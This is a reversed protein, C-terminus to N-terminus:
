FYLKARTDKIRNAELREHEQKYSQWAGELRQRVRECVEYQPKTAEQWNFMSRQELIKFLLDVHRSPWVVTTSEPSTAFMEMQKLFGNFRATGIKRHEEGAALGAEICTGDYHMKALEILALYEEREFTLQFELVYHFRDFNM